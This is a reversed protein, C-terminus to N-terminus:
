DPVIVRVGSYPRRFLISGHGALWVGPEMPSEQRARIPDGRCRFEIPLSVVVASVGRWGARISPTRAASRRLVHLSWVDVEPLVWWPWPRGVISPWPNPPPRP